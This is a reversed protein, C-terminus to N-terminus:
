SRSTKARRAAVQQDALVEGFRDAVRGRERFPEAQAGRRPPLFRVERRGDPPIVVPLSIRFLFAVEEDPQGGADPPPAANGQVFEARGCPQREAGNRTDNRHEFHVTEDRHVQQLM